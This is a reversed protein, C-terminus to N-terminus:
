FVTLLVPPCHPTSPYATPPVQHWVVRHPSYNPLKPRCSYNPFLRVEETECKEPTGDQLQRPVASVGAVNALVVLTFTRM